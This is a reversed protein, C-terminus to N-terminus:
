DPIFGPVWRIIDDEKQIPIALTAAKILKSADHKKGTVLFNVSSSITILLKGVAQELRKALEQRTIRCFSGSIAFTKPFLAFKIPQNSEEEAAIAFQM